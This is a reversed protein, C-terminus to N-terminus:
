HANQLSKEVQELRATLTAITKELRIKERALREVPDEAELRRALETKVLGPSKDAAFQEGAAARKEPTGQAAVSKM